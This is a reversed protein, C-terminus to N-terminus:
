EPVVELIPQPIRKYIVEPMLWLTGNNKIEIKTSGYGSSMGGSPIKKMVSILKSVTDIDPSYLKDKPNIKVLSFDDNGVISKWLSSDKKQGYITDCDFTIKDWDKSEGVQKFKPIYEKTTPTSSFHWLSGDKKLGFDLDTCGNGGWKALFNAWDSSQSFRKPMPQLNGGWAWLTGDKKTAYMFNAGREIKAGDFNNGIKKAKIHHKYVKEYMVRGTEYDISGFGIQGWDCDGSKGFQWLSGDKKLAVYGGCSNWASVWDKSHSEEQKCHNNTHVFKYIIKEKKRSVEIDGLHGEKKDKKFYIPFKLLKTKKDFDFDIRRKHGKFFLRDIYVTSV